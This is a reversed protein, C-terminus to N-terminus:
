VAESLESNVLSGFLPKLKIFFWGDLIRDDGDVLVVKYVNEGFDEHDKIFKCDVDLEIKEKECKDQLDLLDAFSLEKDSDIEYLGSKCYKLHDWGYVEGEDANLSRIWKDNGISYHVEIRFSDDMDMYNHEIIKHIKIRLRRTKAKKVWNTAGKLRDNDFCAIVWEKGSRLVKDVYSCHDLIGQETEEWAYKNKQKWNVPFYEPAFDHIDEVFRYCCKMADMLHELTLNKKDKFREFYDELATKIAYKSVDRKDPDGTNYEHVNESFFKTLFDIDSKFSLTNKM